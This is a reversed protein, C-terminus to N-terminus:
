RQLAEAHLMGLGLSLTNNVDLQQGVSPGLGQSQGGVSGQQAMNPLASGMMGTGASMAPQQQQSQHNIVNVDLGMSRGAAARLADVYMPTSTSMHQTGVQAKVQQQPVSSNSLKSLALTKMHRVMTSVMSPVAIGSCVPGKLISPQESFKTDTAVFEALFGEVFRRVKHGEPNELLQKQQRMTLHDGMGTEMILALLSERQLDEYGALIQVTRPYSIVANGMVGLEEGQENLEEELATAMFLAVRRSVSDSGRDGEQNLEKDSADQLVKELSERVGKRRLQALEAMQQMQQAPITSRCAEDDFFTRLELKVATTGSPQAFPYAAKRARLKTFTVLATSLFGMVNAVSESNPKQSKPFMIHVLDFCERAKRNWEDSM